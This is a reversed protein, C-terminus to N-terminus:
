KHTRLLSAFTLQLKDGTVSPFLCVVQGCSLSLMIVFVQFYATHESKLFFDNQKSHSGPVGYSVLVVSFIGKTLSGLSWPEVLLTKMEIDTMRLCNVVEDTLVECNWRVTKNKSIVCYLLHKSESFYSRCFHLILSRSRVSCM